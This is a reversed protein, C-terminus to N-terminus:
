HLSNLLVRKRLLDFNARGFMMRKILKLKNVQGEVQGNSWPLTIAAEIAQYDQQIGNAFREMEKIGSTLSQELWTKLQEVPQKVQKRILTQFMTALANLKKAEPIHQATANFWTTQEPSMDKPKTSLAFIRGYLDLTMTTTHTPSPNAAESPNAPTPITPTYEPSIPWSDGWGSKLAKFYSYLPAYTGAYGQELIEKYIQYVSTIGEQYRQNAYELYPAVKSSVKRRITHSGQLM